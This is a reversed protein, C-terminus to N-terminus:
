PRRVWLARFRTISPGPGAERISVWRVGEVRVPLAAALAEPTYARAALHHGRSRCLARLGQYHVRALQRAGLDVGVFPAVEVVEARLGADRAVAALRGFDISVEPHDLQVAEVPPADVDGFESVYARGGPRLVRAVRRVFAHAGTNVLRGRQRECPLDAIMENCLLLDVSGDRLPLTFADAHVGATRPARRAQARLLEPALDVRLYRVGPALKASFAAAMEGDGAGVEVVVGRQPVARREALADYLAEGWTRGRLAPHPVGFAHAITTEHDDFHRDGDTIALHYARLSAAPRENDPREPGVLRELAPDHPAPPTDRLQLAQVARDTLRRFFGLADRLSVGARAAVAAVSHRDDIARWLALEADDLREATWAHGGATHVDPVPRWLVREDPLLLAARHRCPILAAADIPALMGLRALRTRLGAGDPGDLRSPADAALVVHRGTVTHWLLVGDGHPLVEVDASLPM